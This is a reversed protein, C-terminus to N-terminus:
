SLVACESAALMVESRLRHLEMVNSLVKLLSPVTVNRNGLADTGYKSSLLDLVAQDYDTAKAKVKAINAIVHKECKILYDAGQVDCFKSRLSYRNDEVPIKPFAFFKITQLDLKAILFPNLFQKPKKTLDAVMEKAYFIMKDSSGLM